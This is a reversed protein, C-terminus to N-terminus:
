EVEIRSEISHVPRPNQYLMDQVVSRWKEEAVATREEYVRLRMMPQQHQRAHKQLNQHIVVSDLEDEFNNSGRLCDLSRM